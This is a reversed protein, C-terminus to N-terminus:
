WKETTSRSLSSQRMVALEHRLRLQHRGQQQGENQPGRRPERGRLQRRRAARRDRRRADGDRRLEAHGLEEAPEALAVRLDRRLDRRLPRRPAVSPDRAHEAEVIERTLLLRRADLQLVALGEQREGVVLELHRPLDLAAVGSHAM